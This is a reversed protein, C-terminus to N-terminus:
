EYRRIREVLTYKRSKKISYLTLCFELLLISFVYLMLVVFPYRFGASMGAQKLAYGIGIGLLSGVFTSMIISFGAIILGEMVLSRFLQKETMGIAQIIAIEKERVWYETMHINVCNVVAFVALLAVLIYILWFLMQNNTQNEEIVDSIKELM